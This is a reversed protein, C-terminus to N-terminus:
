YGISGFYNALKLGGDLWDNSRNYQNVASSLNQRQRLQEYQLVNISRQQALNQDLANMRLADLKERQALEDETENYLGLLVAQSSGTGQAAGSAGFLSKQRAVARKLAARREEENAQAAVAIQQRELAAQQTAQQEGLEQKEQLQALALEDNQAAQRYQVQPATLNQVLGLGQQLFGIASLPNLSGM